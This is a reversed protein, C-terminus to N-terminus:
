RLWPVVEELEVALPDAGGRSGLPSTVCDCWPARRGGEGDCSIRCGRSVPSAETTPPHRSLAASLAVAERSRYQRLAHPSREFGGAPFGRRHSRTSRALGPAPEHHHRARAFGDRHATGASPPACRRTVCPQDISSYRSVNWSSHDRVGHECCSLLPYRARRDAGPLVTEGLRRRVGDTAAGLASRRGPSRDLPQPRIAGRFQMRRAVTIEIRRVDGLSRAPRQPPAARVAALLPLRRRRVPGNTATTTWHTGRPLPGLSLRPHRELPRMHEFTGVERGLEVPVPVNAPVRQGKGRRRTPLGPPLAPFTAVLPLRQDSITRRHRSDRTNAAVDASAPHMPARRWAHARSLGFGVDLPAWM